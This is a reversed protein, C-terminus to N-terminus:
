RNKARYECEWAFTLRVGAHGVSVHNTTCCTITDPVLFRADACGSVLFLGHRTVRDEGEVQDADAATGGALTGGDLRGLEALAHRHDFPLAADAAHADLGAGDGRLGEAFRHLAGEAARPEGSIRAGPHSRGHLLQQGMHLVDDVALDMHDLVVEPAIVDLDEAARRSQDGRGADLDLPHASPHDQVAVVQQNRDACPGAFRGAYWAIADRHHGGVPQEAQAAQGATQRHDAGSDDADFIGAHERRETDLDGDDIAPGPWQFEEIM